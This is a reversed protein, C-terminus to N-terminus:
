AIAFETDKRMEASKFGLVTKDKPVGARVFDIAVGEETGNQWIQCALL